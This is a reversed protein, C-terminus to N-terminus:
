KHNNFELVVILNTIMYDCNRFCLIHILIGNRFNILFFISIKVESSWKRYEKMATMSQYIQLGTPENDKFPEFKPERTGTLRPDINPVSSVTGQSTASSPGPIGFPAANQQTNFGSSPGPFGFGSGSSPGFGFSTQPQPQGFGGFATSPGPQGFNGFSTQAQQGFGPSQWTGFAQNTSTTTVPNQFGSKGFPFSQNFGFGQQSSM